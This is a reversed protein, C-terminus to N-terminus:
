AAQSAPAPPAEIHAAASPAGKGAVPLRITFTTGKGVTSDFRLAGGHKERVVAWALALGQGTGKGVAKTTFFPEFVRARIEDPIGAGTDSVDIVVDDGEHRTTVRIRGREGSNGVVDGIAHAANVILNLVVQNLDSIFCTVPPLPQLDTELDAVYKYENCAITLTSQIARNLDAPAMEKQAPHSFEKMSRVITAIRTLGDGCREFAKPMQEQLYDLDADAEADRAASLARELADAAAGAEALRGVEREAFVVAFLDRCADSLFQMSDSVFQVPTNIEHAVGAALTGIAALRQGAVAEAQTRRLETVDLAAIVVGVIADGERLPGIHVSFDLREQGDGHRGRAEYVESAGTRLIRAFRERYQDHEDAPVFHLWSQGVLARASPDRQNIFTVLGERDTTVLVVPACSVISDLLSRTAAEDARAKAIASEDRVTAQLFSEGDLDIRSLLVTCPFARGDLTQHTWQFLRAGDKMAAEINEKAAEGSLRGDPQREPSFEWPGRGVFDAEDKVGFLKVCAANGSSFKWSPPGLTMLADRSSQFLTAHRRAAREAAAEARRQAEATSLQMAGSMLLGNHALDFRRSVPCYLEIIALVEAGVTIPIAVRTRMGARAGGDAAPLSGPSAADLELWEPASPVSGAAFLARPM